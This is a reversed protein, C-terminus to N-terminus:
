AYNTCRLLVKQGSLEEDEWSKVRDLLERNELEALDAELELHWRQAQGFM